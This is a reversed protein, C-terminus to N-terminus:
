FLIYPKGKSVCKKYMISLVTSILLEFGILVTRKLIGPAFGKINMYTSIYQIVMYHILFLYSSINGFYIFVKNSLLKTLLGNRLAFLYVWIVAIVIYVTTWNHAAIVLLRRNSKKLLKYIGLTLFLAAIEILTANIFSSNQRIKELNDTYIKGAVMGIFFDGLRFIPFCYMYWTYILSDSGFYKLLPVCSIIQLFIVCACIFALLYNNLKRIKNLLFPFMFYLFATVSLYWAAGNLAVNVSADPFWTQLLVINLLVNNILVPAANSVNDYHVMIAINLLVALFLTIIHLPYLKLIKNISFILNNRVSVDFSKSEYSYYMLFGSMVFFVSVGLTGWEVFFSSHIFFIGLFAIARLAQLSDIKDKKAQPQTTENSLSDM